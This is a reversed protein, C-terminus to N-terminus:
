ARMISTLFIAAGVLFGISAAALAVVGQYVDTARWSTVTALAPVVHWTFAAFFFLALLGVLSLGYGIRRSKGAGFYAAFVGSALVTVGFALLLISQFVDAYM